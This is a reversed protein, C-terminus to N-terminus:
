NQENKEEKAHLYEKINLVAQRKIIKELDKLIAEKEEELIDKAIVDLKKFITGYDEPRANQMDIQMLFKAIRM